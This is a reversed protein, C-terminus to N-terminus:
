SCPEVRREAAKTGTPPQTPRIKHRTLIKGCALYILAVILGVATIALLFPSILTLVILQGFSARRSNPSTRDPLHDPFNNM